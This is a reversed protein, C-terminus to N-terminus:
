GLTASRWWNHLPGRFQEVSPWPYWRLASQDGLFFGDKITRYFFEYSHARDVTKTPKQELEAVAALCERIHEIRAYPLASDRGTESEEPRIGPTLLDAFFIKPVSVPGTRDTVFRTFQAPPLTSAILPAVPCLEQYLWPGNEFKADCPKGELKLVKGDRTTCYLAGILSLDLHELVRYISLYVSHKPTGDAHPVCHKEIRSLDFYDSEFDRSVEFYLLPDRSLKQSGVTMYTGFEEPELMSAVLAEVRHAILYLRAAM